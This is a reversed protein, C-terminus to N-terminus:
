APWKAIALASELQPARRSTLRSTATMLVDLRGQQIDYLLNKGGYRVTSKADHREHVQRDNAQAISKGSAPATRDYIDTQQCGAISQLGDAPHLLSGIASSRRRNAREHSRCM